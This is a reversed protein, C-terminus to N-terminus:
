RVRKGLRQYTNEIHVYESFSVSEGNDGTLTLKILIRDPSEWTVQFTSVRSSLLRPAGLYPVHDWLEHTGSNVYYIETVIGSDTLDGDEDDDYLSGEDVAGDGDDDVGKIGPAGDSNMDAPTDEDINGDGDNDAGDLRDENYIGDEDDDRWTSLVSEDVWGDGDDDIGLIGNAGDDDMDSTIDSDIRPFLPDGFYYENHKNVMGSFALINRVEQHDNPILLFTCRRAHSTLREMIMLGERYLGYRADGVARTDIAASLLASAGVAILAFIAISVLLEVLTFGRQSLTRM